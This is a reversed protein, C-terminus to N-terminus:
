FTRQSIEADGAYTAAVLKTTFKFNKTGVPLPLVVRPRQVSEAIVRRFVVALKIQRARTCPTSNDRRGVAALKAGPEHKGQESSCADAIWWLRM